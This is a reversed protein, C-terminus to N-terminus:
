IVFIKELFIRAFEFTNPKWLAGHHDYYECFLGKEDKEFLLACAHGGISTGNFDAPNFHIVNLKGNCSRVQKKAADCLIKITLRAIYQILMGYLCWERNSENELDKFYKYLNDLAITESATTDCLLENFNLDVGMWPMACNYQALARIRSALERVVRENYFLCIEKGIANYANEKRLIYQTRYMHNMSGDPNVFVNLSISHPTKCLGDSVYKDIIRKTIVARTDAWGNSMVRFINTCHLLDNRTTM